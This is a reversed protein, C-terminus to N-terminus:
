KKGAVQQADYDKWFEEVTQAPHQTAPNLGLSLYRLKPHSRLLELNKPYTVPMGVATPRGALILEELEPCEVLPAVDYCETRELNLFKLPMGRLPELDSLGFSMSLDLYKIPLGRLRSLDRMGLNFLHLKLKHDADM